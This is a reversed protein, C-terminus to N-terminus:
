KEELIRRFFDVCKEEFLEVTECDSVLVYDCNDYIFSDPKQAAIRMKAYEESLGDREMIRKIRIEVPATVGVIVDCKGGLGSEILAIADVAALTGGKSEWEKLRREVEISVFKHTIRNLEALAGADNFVIVGLAKRDITGDKVAGEFRAAIEGIMETNQELLEHYLRDCDIVLAGLSQLARLASTKGGGSGGTIGIITM